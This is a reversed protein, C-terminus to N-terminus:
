EPVTNMTNKIKKRAKLKRSNRISGPDQNEGMGSRPARIGSGFLAAFSLFSFLKKRMGKITAVFSVFNFM